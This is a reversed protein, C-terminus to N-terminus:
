ILKHSYQIVRSSSCNLHLHANVASIVAHHLAFDISQGLTETAQEKAMWDVNFHNPISMLAKLLAISPKYIREQHKIFVADRVRDQSKLITPCHTSNVTLYAPMNRHYTDRDKILKTDTVDACEHLYKEILSKIPSGKPTQTTHSEPFVFGPYVSAVLYYRERSQHGGFDLANLVQQSVFYGLRRLTTVLIDAAGSTAFQRVNEVMVIAPSVIEIQKLAPYIMDVMTSLDEVSRAKAKASKATSHDDCGLSYHAIGIPDCEDMLKELYRTDLQYLDENLLIRPHGNVLANLAHVECLNRGAAVDRAEPPRHELIIETKWGLQEMAMVDVGGTLATFVKFPDVKKFRDIIAFTRNKLPTFRITNKRMEVHFRETYAPFCNNLLSQGGFEMVLEMPNNSRGRRQYGRQYVQHTKSQTDTAPVVTFGSLDGHEQITLASGAEFNM